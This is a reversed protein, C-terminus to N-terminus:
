RAGEEWTSVGRVKVEPTRDLVSELVLESLERLELRGQHRGTKIADEDM